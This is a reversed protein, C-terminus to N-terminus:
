VPEFGAILWTNGVREMEVHASSRTETPPETGVTTTQDIYVLVRARDADASVLAAAPVAAVASIRQEEAGPAVVDNILTTYETRFEGTMREGAATLDERVRDPRYSLMAVVGETAAAVPAAAAGGSPVASDLQWKLFGVGLAAAVVILPLVLYAVARVVAPHRAQGAAAADDVPAHDSVTDDGIEDIRPTM